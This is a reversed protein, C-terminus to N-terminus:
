IKTIYCGLLADYNENILYFSDIKFHLMLFTHIKKLFRYIVSLQYM